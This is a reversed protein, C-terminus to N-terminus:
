PPCPLAAAARAPANVLSAPKLTTYSFCLVGGRPVVSVVIGAACPWHLDIVIGQALGHPLAAILNKDSAEDVSAADHLLFRGTSGSRVIIVKAIRCPGSAILRATTVNLATGDHVPESTRKPFPVVNM